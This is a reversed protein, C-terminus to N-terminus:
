AKKRTELPILIFNVTIGNDYAQQIWSDKIKEIFNGLPVLKECKTLTQHIILEEEQFEENIKAKINKLQTKIGWSSYKIYYIINCIKAKHSIQGFAQQIHEHFKSDWIKAEAIFVDNNPLKAYIDTKRSINKVEGLFECKKRAYKVNSNLSVRIIGSLLDEPIKEKGNKPPITCQSDIQVGISIIDKIVSDINISFDSPHFNLNLEHVNGNIIQIKIPNPSDSTEHTDLQFQFFPLNKKSRLEFPYSSQFPSFNNLVNLKSVTYLNNKLILHFEKPDKNLYITSLYEPHLDNYWIVKRELDQNELKEYLECFIKNPSDGFFPPAGLNTYLTQNEDLYWNFDLIPSIRKIESSIKSQNDEVWEKFSIENKTSCLNERCFLILNNSVILYFELSVIIQNRYEKMNSIDFFKLSEEFKKIALHFEKRYIHSLGEFYSLKGRIYGLRVPFEIAKIRDWDISYIDAEFLDLEKVSRAFEKLKNENKCLFLQFAILDLYYRCFNYFSHEQSNIQTLIDFSESKYNILNLLIAKNYSSTFDAIKHYIQDRKKSNISYNRVYTILIELYEKSNFIEEKPKNIFEEFYINFENPNYRAIFGFESQNLRLRSLIQKKEDDKFESFNEWLKKANFISHPKFSENKM